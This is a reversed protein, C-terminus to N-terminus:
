LRHCFSQDRNKGRGVFTSFSWTAGELWIKAEKLLVCCRIWMPFLRFIFRCWKFHLNHNWGDNELFWRTTESHVWSRLFLITESIKSGMRGLMSSLDGYMDKKHFNWGLGHVRYVDEIRREHGHNGSHNIETADLKRRSPLSSLADIWFLIEFRM